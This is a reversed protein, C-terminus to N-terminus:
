DDTKKLGARRKIQRLVGNLWYEMDDVSAESLTRPWILLAEGEDLAKKEEFQDLKAKSLGYSMFSLVAQPPPPPTGIVRNDDVAIVTVESMPLATTGQDTWLWGNDDSVAIVKAPKAFQDIGASTWQILDGIKALYGGTQDPEGEQESNLQDTQLEPLGVGAFGLSANYRTAIEQAASKSYEARGSHKRGLTLEHVITDVDVDASKFREWLELFVKPTLAARRLAVARDNSNPRKDRVIADGIDSLRFKKGEGMGEDDTLGFQNLAGLVKITSSSTPSYGWAKAITSIPVAFGRALEALPAAKDVASELDLYPYPPSKFRQQDTM